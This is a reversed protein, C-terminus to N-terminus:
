PVNELFGPRIGNKLEEDFEFINYEKPPVLTCSMTEYMCMGLSFMDVQLKYM